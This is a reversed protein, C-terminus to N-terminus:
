SILEEKLSKILVELEEACRQYVETDGGWPDSVDKGHSSWDGLRKIKQAFEPYLAKLHREQAKTMTIVWDAERILEKDVCRARHSTIDINKANLVKITEPSAAVGEFASTGASYIETDAPFIQRALGVALPSRCTNGTCVFLLKLGM